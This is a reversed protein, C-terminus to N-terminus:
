GTPHHDHCARGWLAAPQEEDALTAPPEPRINGEFTLGLRKFLALDREPPSNGATLLREGYFVSNAGALFCLAQLTDDMQERGASLRIYSAPMAIRALAITRVFDLPDPPPTAALPTGPLAILHNIPVSEPHHPLNALAQILGIRDESEEGMGIIGGCCVKLGQDRVIELTELREAYPRTSIIEPYFGPSTDLNHNYYDLGAQQLRSAQERTLSGLTACTELGLAKVGRVMAEIQEMERGKPSRGSAGMCFRTAGHDRARQAAAVVEDVAMMRQPEVGQEHHASQPCYACDEPCAGTKISILSSVQIQNPPFHRRHITQARHILDNFPLAHLAAIEEHRWNHRIDAVVSMYQSSISHIERMM